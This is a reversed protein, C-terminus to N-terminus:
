ICINNSSWGARCVQLLPELATWLREQSLIRQQWALTAAEAPSLSRSWAGQM